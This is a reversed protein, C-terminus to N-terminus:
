LSLRAELSSREFQLAKEVSHGNPLNHRHRKLHKVLRRGRIM